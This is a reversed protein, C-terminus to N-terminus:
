GCLLFLFLTPSTTGALSPNLRTSLYSEARETTTPSTTGALSPNLSDLAPGTGGQFYPRLPQELLLLILVEAIEALKKL